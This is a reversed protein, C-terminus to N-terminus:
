QDVSFSVNEDSDVVERASEASIRFSDGPVQDANLKQASKLHYKTCSHLEGNFFIKSSIDQPLPFGSSDVAWSAVEVEGKQMGASYSWKTPLSSAPDLEIQCEVPDGSAASMGKFKISQKANPGSNMLESNSVFFNWTEDVFLENLLSSSGKRYFAFLVPILLPNEYDFRLKFTEANKGICLVRSSSLAQFLTGDYAFEERVKPRSDYSRNRVISLRPSSFAIEDVGQVTRKGNPLVTYGDIEYEYKNSNLSKLYSRYVAAVDPLSGASLAPMGFSLGISCGLFWALALTRNSKM